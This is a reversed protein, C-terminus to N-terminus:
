TSKHIGFVNGVVRYECCSALKYLSVAIKKEVSIPERVPTLHSKLAPALKSCLIEFSSKKMRFSELYDEDTYHNLVIENWFHTSRMKMWMARHRPLIIQYINLHKAAALMIQMNNTQLRNLIRTWRERRKKRIMSSIRFQRAQQTIIIQQFWLACMNLYEEM